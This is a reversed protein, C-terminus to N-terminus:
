AGVGLWEYEPRSSIAECRADEAQEAASPLHRDCYAGFDIMDSVSFLEGIDITQGTLTVSEVVYCDDGRDFYGYFDLLLNNHLFATVLSILKKGIQPQAWQATTNTSM